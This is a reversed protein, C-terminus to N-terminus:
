LAGRPALLLPRARARELASSHRRFATSDRHTEGQTADPSSCRIPKTPMLVVRRLDCAKLSLGKQLPAAMQESGLLNRNSRDAWHDCSGFSSAAGPRPNM